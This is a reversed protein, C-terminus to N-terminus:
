RVLIDPSYWLCLKDHLMEITGAQDSLATM